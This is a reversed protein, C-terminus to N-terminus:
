ADDLSTPEGSCGVWFVGIPTRDAISSPWWRVVISGGPAARGIYAEDM